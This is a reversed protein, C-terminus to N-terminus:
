KIITKGGVARKLQSSWVRQAQRRLLMLFYDVRDNGAVALLGKTQKHLVNAEVIFKKCVKKRRKMERLPLNLVSLDTRLRAFYAQEDRESVIAVPNGADITFQRVNTSFRRYRCMKRLPLV